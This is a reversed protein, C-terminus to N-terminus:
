DRRKPLDPWWARFKSSKKDLAPSKVMPEIPEHILNGLIVSGPIAGDSYNLVDGNTMIEFYQRSRSEISGVRVDLHPYQRIAEKAKKVFEQDPVAYEAKMQASARTDWWQFISWNWDKAYGNEAIMKAMAPLHDINYKTVTTNPKVPIGYTQLIKIAAKAKDLTDSQGKRFTEVVEQTPGDIPIGFFSVKGRMRRAAEETMTYGTSDVAVKLGTEHLLDVYDLFDPALLPDGGTLIVEEVGSRKLKRAVKRAEDLTMKKSRFNFYCGKCCLPCQNSIAWNVQKLPKYVQREKLMEQVFQNVAKAQPKIEKPLAKWASSLLMEAERAAEKTPKNQSLVTALEFQLIAKDEAGNEATVAVRLQKELDAFNESNLLDFKNRGSFRLHLDAHPRGALEPPLKGSIWDVPKPLRLAPASDAKVKAVIEEAAAEPVGDRDILFSFEKGQYRAKVLSGDNVLNKEIEEVGVLELNNKRLFGSYRGEEGILEGLKSVDARNGAKFVGSWYHRRTIDRTSPVPTFAANSDFMREYTWGTLEGFFKQAREKGIEHYIFLNQIGHPMMGHNGPAGDDVLISGRKIRQFYLRGPERGVYRSITEMPIGFRDADEKLVMGLFKDPIGNRQKPSCEGAKRCLALAREALNVMFDDFKKSNFANYIDVFSKQVEPSAKQTIARHISEKYQPFTMSLIRQAVDEASRAQDPVKPTHMIKELYARDAAQREAEAIVSKARKAAENEFYAVDKPSGQSRALDIKKLLDKQYLQHYNVRQELLEPYIAYGPANKGEKAAQAAQEDIIAKSRSVMVDLSDSLENGFQTSEFQIFRGKYKGVFLYGSTGYLHEIKLENLGYKEEVARVLGAMNKVDRFSRMEAFNFKERYTPGNKLVKEMRAVYKRLLDDAHYFLSHSPVDLPPLGTKLLMYNLLERGTRGNADPFMHINIFDQYLRFPELPDSQTSLENIKAILEDKRRPVESAPAFNTMTLGDETDQSVQFRGLDPRSFKGKDRVVRDDTGRVLGALAAEKKQDYPNIGQNNYWNMRELTESTLPTNDKLHAALLANAERVGKAFKRYANDDAYRANSSSGLQVRTLHDTLEAANLKALVEMEEGGRLREVAAAADAKLLPLMEMKRFDLAVVTESTRARTAPVKFWRGRADKMTLSFETVGKPPLPETIMFCATLRDYCAVNLPYNMDPSYEIKFRPRDLKALEAFASDINFIHFDPNPSPHVAVKAPLNKLKSYAAQCGPDLPPKALEAHTAASAFLLLIVSIFLRPDM